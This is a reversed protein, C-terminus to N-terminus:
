NQERRLADLHDELIRHLAEPSDAKEMTDTLEIEHDIQGAGAVLRGVGAESSDAHQFTGLVTGGEDTIVTLKM